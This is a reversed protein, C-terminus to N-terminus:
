GIDAPLGWSSFVFEKLAKRQRPAIEQAHLRENGLAEPDGQYGLAIVSGLLYEEPIELVKRAADRDFGGMQHTVLGLAAAEITLLATAAGLDYLAYINPTGGTSSTAKAIGLMLVPAQPAWTQNFSVLTSVIKDHTSTGHVGLLYSWPQANNSSPAWRAAEFVRALDPPAVDRESFSRPSWRNHIAPLIGEVAPATKIENVENISLAM